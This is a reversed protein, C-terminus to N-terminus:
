DFVSVLAVPLLPMRLNWLEYNLGENEASGNGVVMHLAEEWSKSLKRQVEVAALM